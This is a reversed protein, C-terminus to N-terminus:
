RTLDVVAARVRLVGDVVVGASVIDLTDASTYQKGLGLAPTVTVVMNAVNTGTCTIVPASSAKATTVVSISEVWGNPDTGDGVTFTQTTNTNQTAATITEVQVATVRVNAPIDIVQVVDGTTVNQVSFDVSQEIVYHRGAFTDAMGSADGVTLDYTEAFASLGAFALLASVFLISLKKM